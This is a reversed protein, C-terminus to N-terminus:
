LTQFLMATFAVIKKWNKKLFSFVEGETKIWYISNKNPPLHIEPNPNGSYNNLTINNVVVQDARIINNIDKM